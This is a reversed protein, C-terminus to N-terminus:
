IVLYDKIKQQNIDELRQQKIKAMPAVGDVSIYFLKTPNINLLFEIYELCKIIM